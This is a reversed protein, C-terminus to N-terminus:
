AAAMESRVHGEILSTLHFGKCIECGYIRVELRRSSEGNLEQWNRKVEIRHLAVEAEDHDRYRVKSSSCAKSKKNLKPQTAKQHGKIDCHRNRIAFGKLRHDMSSLAAKKM